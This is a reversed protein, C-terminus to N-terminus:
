FNVNVRSYNMDRPKRMKWKELWCIRAVHMLVALGRCLPTHFYCLMAGAGELCINMLM